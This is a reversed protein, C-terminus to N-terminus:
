DDGIFLMQLVYQFLKLFLDKAGMQGVGSEKCVDYIYVQPPLLARAEIIAWANILKEWRKGLYKPKGELIKSLDVGTYM